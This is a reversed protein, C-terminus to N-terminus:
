ATGIPDSAMLSARAYKEANEALESALDLLRVTAHVTGALADGAFTAVPLEYFSALRVLESYDDDSLTITIRKSM